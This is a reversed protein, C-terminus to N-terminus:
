RRRRSRKRLRSRNAAVRGRARKREEPTAEDYDDGLIEDAIDGAERNALRQKDLKLKDADAVKTTPRLREPVDYGLRRLVERQAQDALRTVSTRDAAPVSDPFVTEVTAALDLPPRADLSPLPPDEDGQYLPSTQRRAIGNPSAFGIELDLGMESAVRRGHHDFATRFVPDESHCVMGVMKSRDAVTEHTTAQTRKTIRYGLRRLVERQIRAAHRTLATRDDASVLPPFVTEVTVAQDVPPRTDPSPVPPDETEHYTPTVQIRLGAPSAYCIKLNLGYEHAVERAHCDFATQFVPDESYCVIRVDPWSPTLPFRGPDFEEQLAALEAIWGAVGARNAAHELEKLWQQFEPSKWADRYWRSWFDEAILKRDRGLIRLGKEALQKFEAGETFVGLSEEALKLSAPKEEATTDSPHPM